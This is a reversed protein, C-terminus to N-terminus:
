AAAARPVARRGARLAAHAAGDLARALAWCGGVVACLRAALHLAGLRGARLRVVLPSTDYIVWVGPAERAGPPLAHYYETVSYQHTRTRRGWASSHETPVAKVFYKDM